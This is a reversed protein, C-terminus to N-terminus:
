KYVVPLFISHIPVAWGGFDVNIPTPDNEDSGATIHCTPLYNTYQVIVLFTVTASGGVPIDGPNCMIWDEGPESEICQDNSNSPQNGLEFQFKVWVNTAVDPGDNWIPVIYLVGTGPYFPPEAGPPGITISGVVLDATGLPAAALAPAAILLFCLMLVILKKM